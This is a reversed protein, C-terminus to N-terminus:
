NRIQISIKGQAVKYTQKDIESGVFRWDYESVLISLYLEGGIGVDLIRIKRKTQITGYTNELIDAVKIFINQEDQFLRVFFDKSYGM